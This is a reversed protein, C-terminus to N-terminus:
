PSNYDGLLILSPYYFLFLPLFKTFNFTNVVCGKNIEIIAVQIRGYKEVHSILTPSNVIGANQGEPTEIPCLRGFHSLHITRIEIRRNSLNFGGPGLGTLRRKQTLGSLPNLQDAFQLLPNTTLFRRFTQNFPEIPLLRTFYYKREQILIEVRQSIRRELRILANRTEVSLFDNVTRLRRTILSDVNDFRGDTKSRHLLVHFAIVFDMPVLCSISLTFEHQFHDNLRYRGNKGLTYTRFNSFKQM